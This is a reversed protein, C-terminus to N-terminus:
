PGWYRCSNLVAAMYRCRRGTGFRAACAWVPFAYRVPLHFLTYRALSLIRVLLHHSFIGHFNIKFMCVLFFLLTFNREKLSKFFIGITYFCYHRACPSWWCQLCQMSTSDAYMHPNISLAVMGCQLVSVSNCTCHYRAFIYFDTNVKSLSLSLSFSSEQLM